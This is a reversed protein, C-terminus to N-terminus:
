VDWKVGYQQQDSLIGGQGEGEQEGGGGQEGGEGHERKGEGGLGKCRPYARGLTRNM